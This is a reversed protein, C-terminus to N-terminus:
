SGAPAGGNGKKPMVQQVANQLAKLDNTVNQAEDAKMTGKSSGSCVTGLDVSGDVPLSELRLHEPTGVTLHFEYSPPSPSDGYSLTLTASRCAPVPWYGVSDSQSAPMAKKFEEYTISDPVKPSDFAIAWKWGPSGGMNGTLQDERVPISFPHLTGVTPASSEPGSKNAVGAAVSAVVAFASAAVGIYKPILNEAKSSVSKPMESNDYRSIGLTTNQWIGTTGKVMMAFDADPIPVAKATWSQDDIRVNALDYGQQTQSSKTSDTKASDPQPPTSQGQQQGNSSGPHKGPKSKGRAKNKVVGGGQDASVSMQGSSDGSGAAKGASKAASGDPAVLIYTRPLEVYSYGDQADALVTTTDSDKYSVQVTDCSALISTCMLAVALKKM